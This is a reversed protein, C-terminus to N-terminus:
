GASARAEASVPLAALSEVWLPMGGKPRLTVLPDPDVSQIGTPVRLRFRQLVMAVIVQAEITAFVNGICMRQGAGFPLYAHKPRAATREPSFRDPDFREPAEWWRPSRHMAYPCVLIVANRPVRHSCIVDPGYSQRTFIWVPPYLRLTEDWVRRTLELRQADGATPSRGGLVTALEDRLRQEIDPHRALLYWLWSLAVATTEHGALFLTMAEDRLQGDTMGQGSDADRADMLMGLLDEHREGSRRREAIIRLIVRDITEVARDFERKKRSPIKMILPNFTLIRRNTEEIAFSLAQGIEAAERSV